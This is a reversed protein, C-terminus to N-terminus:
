ASPVSMMLRILVKLESRPDNFHKVLLDREQQDLSSHLTKADVLAARLVKEMYWANIPVSDVILLKQHHGYQKKNLLRM